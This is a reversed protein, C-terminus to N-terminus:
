HTIAIDERHERAQRELFGKLGDVVAREFTNLEEVSGVNHPFQIVKDEWTPDFYPQDLRAMEILSDPDVEFFKALNIVTQRKLKFQTDGELSMLENYDVNAKLALQKVSLHSKRRSFHVFCYFNICALHRKNIQAEKILNMPDYVSLPGVSYDEYWDLNLEDEEKHWQPTLSKTM